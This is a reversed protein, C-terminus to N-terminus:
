PRPRHGAAKSRAREVPGSSDEPWRLRGPGTIRAASEDRDQQGAERPYRVEGEEAQLVQWPLDEFRALHLPDSRQPTHERGVDCQEHGREPDDDDERAHVRHLVEGRDQQERVPPWALTTPLTTPRRRRESRARPPTTLRVDPAPSLGHGPGARARLARRRPAIPALDLNCRASALQPLGIKTFVSEPRYLSTLALGRTHDWAVSCLVAAVGRPGRPRLLSITLNRLVALVQPAAGVRVQSRDEDFVPDRGFHSRHEITWHGRICCALERTGAEKPALSTVYCSTETLGLVYHDGKEGLPSRAHERQAHMANATVVTDDLEAGEHLPRVATVGGTETGVDQQATTASEGHPMASVLHVARPVEIGAIRLTKEDVAALLALEGGDDSHGVRTVSEELAVRRHASPSVRCGLRCLKRLNPVTAHGALLGSPSDLDPRSAGVICSRQNHTVCRLLGHRQETSWGIHGGRAALRLVASGFRVLAVWKDEGGAVYRMIEGVLSAGLWHGRRLTEDSREREDTIPRLVLAGAPRLASPEMVARAAAPPTCRWYGPDASDLHRGWVRATSRAMSRPTALAGISGHDGEASPRVITSWYPARCNPAGSM